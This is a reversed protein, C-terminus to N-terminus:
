LEEEKNIIKSEFSYPVSTPSPIGFGSCSRGQEKLKPHIKYFAMAKETEGDGQKILDH